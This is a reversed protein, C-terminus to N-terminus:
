SFYKLHLASAAANGIIMSDYRRLDMICIIIIHAHAYFLAQRMGHNRNYPRANAIGM